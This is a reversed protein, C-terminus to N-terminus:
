FFWPFVNLSVLTLLLCNLVAVMSAASIQHVFQTVLVILYVSTSEIKFPLEMKLILERTDTQNSGKHRLLTGTAYFFISIAHSGITLNSFWRALYAMRNMAYENSVDRDKWDEVVHAIIDDLLSYHTWLFIPRYPIATIRSINSSIYSDICIQLNVYDFIEKKKYNNAQSRSYFIQFISMKHSYKIKYVIYM